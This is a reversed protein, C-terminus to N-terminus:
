PRIACARTPAARIASPSCRRLGALDGGPVGARGPRRRHATRQRRRRRLLGAGRRLVRRAQDRGAAAVARGGRCAGARGRGPGAQPPLPLLGRRHRLRGAGRRGRGRRAAPVGTGTAPLPRRRHHRCRVPRRPRHDARAAAGARRRGRGAHCAASGARGHPHLAPLLRRHGCLGPQARVGGAGRATRGGGAVAPQRDGRRPPDRYTRVLPRGQGKRAAGGDRRPDRRADHERRRVQRRLPLLRARHPLQAAPPRRRRPRRAPVGGAAAAAGIAACPRAGPEGRPRVAPLLPSPSADHATTKTPM